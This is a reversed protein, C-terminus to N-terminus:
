FVTEVENRVVVVAFQLDTFGASTTTAVRLYREVTQAGDTAIRESTPASTVQTFAGDTVDAFPDVAGDDSSQQITITADTGTFAFVHLYAQLGFSTAAGGDVSSGNTAASDTRVGATLNRGWELGFGNALAQVAFTLSGDDGRTADYNIQKGVLCAAPKGLTTGRCYTVIQDTRPLASLTDHTGGVDPNFYAVAEIGGDRQLGIREVASKDIGTVQWPAPGGGIRGLSTIDGSVNVGAYYLNDGLGSQKTM